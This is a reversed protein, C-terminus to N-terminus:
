REDLVLKAYRAAPPAGDHELDVVNVGRRITAAAITFPLDIPQGAVLPARAVLEGEWRVRVEGDALATGALRAAVAGPYELPVLFRARAQAPREGGAAAGFGRVLYRAHAPAGFSLEDHPRDNNRRRYHELKFDTLFSSGVIEDYAAPSAGTRLAFAWAAPWSLPNGARWLDRAVDVLAGDYVALMDKARSHHIQNRAFRQTMVLNCTAAAAAVLGLAAAAAARPRRECLAVLAAAVTALGLAVHVLLSDYRRGGFAGGGSWDASAGNLYATLAFTVWLAAALGRDRRTFAVLGLAGLAWLPAYPFIGNRSSFLTESWMSEAWRMYGPGQPVAVFSGYLVKWAIMQPAFAVVAVLAGLLPGRAAALLERPARRARVLGAVAEGVLPAAFALNPTRMLMALGLLLGLLLWSRVPRPAGTIAPRGRDWAWLLAAVCFGSTAHAYYPQNLTYHLLPGGAFAALAGFAAVGHGFRRRAVAYAFLVALAAYVYSGFMTVRQEVITAGPAGDADPAFVRAAGHGAVFWPAWLVAPGITFPNAPKGTATPTYGYYNGSHPSAYQNAFDLDGDLVLSTLYAWYYRGDAGIRLNPTGDPRRAVNLYVAGAIFSVAFLAVFWRPTGDVWRRLARLM